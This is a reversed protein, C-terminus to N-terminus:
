CWDVNLWEFFPNSKGFLYSLKEASNECLWFGYKATDVLTTHWIRCSKRWSGVERGVLWWWRFWTRRRRNLRRTLWCILWTPLWTGFINKVKQIEIQFLPTNSYNAVEQISLVFWTYRSDCYYFLTSQVGTSGQSILIDSVFTRTCNYRWTLTVENTPFILGSPFLYISLIFKHTNLLINFVNRDQFNTPKPMPCNQM